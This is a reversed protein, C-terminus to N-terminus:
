FRHQWVVGATGRGLMPAFASTNASKRRKAIVLMAIGAGLLLPATVLGAIAITQSSRGRDDIDKCDGVPATLVCMNAPDDFATEASKARAAGAAFMALMAAGGGVAVGGGIALGKWPKTAKRPAPEPQVPPPAVTEDAPVKAAEADQRAQEAADFRARFAARVKTVPEPLTEQPYAATFGAAYADLVELGERVVDDHGSDDAAKEYAESIYEHIARRNDRHEATEPLLAATRTWTRAAVLYEKRNFEEQGARFGQDFAALDAPASATATAAVSAARSTTPLACCMATLVLITRRLPQTAGPRTRAVCEVM